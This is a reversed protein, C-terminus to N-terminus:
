GALRRRASRAAIHDALFEADHRAGDLLGSRRRSQFHLGIAYLGPIPTVGRVHRLEGGAGLVRRPLSSSSRRFGTAWVVSGIHDAALSLSRPGPGVRVPAVPEAAPFAAAPGCRQVAAEIRALVRRLTADASASTEALDDAFHVEGEGVDVLRGALRVGADRLTALDLEGREQGALQASPEHRAREPDRLQELSVDLRGTRELWWWIDFGRYRRPLRTHRGVALVVERGSRALEDAIQVGSAGAGVVLVGGAPLASPDRYTSPTVQQVSRGLRAALPPVRPVDCDGTALVVRGAEWSGEDTRVVFGGDFPHVDRVTTGTQVPSGFAVAYRELYSAVQAAGMYGDPDAGDYSWGPLRAMWNPTLLRLSKWRESRWREALRGRELVVHDIGREALSTSLALGAHGAGVILTDVSTM